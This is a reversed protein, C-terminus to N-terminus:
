ICLGSLNYTCNSLWNRCNDVTTPAPDINSCSRTTCVSVLAGPATLTCLIKPTSDSNDELGNCLTVKEANTKSLSAYDGTLTYTCAVAEVCLSGTFRCSKKWNICESYSTPIPKINACTKV